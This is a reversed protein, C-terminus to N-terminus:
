VWIYLFCCCTIQVSAAKIVFLLSPLKLMGLFDQRANRGGLFINQGGLGLFIGASVRGAGRSAGEQSFGGGGGPVKLLFGVGGWERDGQVGGEGGGLLFFLFYGFRGGLLKESLTLRWRLLPWRLAKFKFSSKIESPPHVWSSCIASESFRCRNGCPPLSGSAKQIRKGVSGGM